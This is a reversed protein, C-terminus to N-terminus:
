LPMVQSYWKFSFTPSGFGWMVEAAIFSYKAIHMRGGMGKVCGTVELQWCKNFSVQNQICCIIQEKSM